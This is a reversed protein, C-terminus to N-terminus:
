NRAVVVVVVVAVNFHRCTMLEVAHRGGADLLLLRLRDASKMAM